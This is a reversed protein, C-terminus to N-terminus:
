IQTEQLAVLVAKQSVARAPERSLLHAYADLSSRFGSRHYHALHSGLHHSNPSTEHPPTAVLLANQLMVGLNARGVRCHKQDLREFYCYRLALRAM